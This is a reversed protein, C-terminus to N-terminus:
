RPISRKTGPSTGFPDYEYVAALAGSSANVLATVNGNGDYAPYYSTTPSGSTYNTMRLLAGVGGASTRPNM